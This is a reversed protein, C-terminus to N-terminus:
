GRPRSVPAAHSRLARDISARLVDEAVVGEFRENGVFMTPLGRVGARAADDRDRELRASVRPSNVCARYETLDLGLRAAIAECGAASIDEARFLADAMPEGRGQEEACCAARAAAEAHPHIRSLPLHKRVFRVRSGYSALVQTLVEHQRRCFPCEFDAFEVITTVGPRQERAIPEPLAAVRVPEVPPSAHMFGFVLPGVVSLVAAGALGWRRRVTIQVSAERRGLWAAAGVTIGAVDTVLCFPCFAGCVAKQLVILAGGVGGAVLGAWPLLRRVAPRTSLSMALVAAFSVVGVMPWSVGGVRSLWCQRVRDCGGGSGCLGFQSPLAYSVVLWASVALGVLAAVQLVLGAHRRVM